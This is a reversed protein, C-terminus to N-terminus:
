NVTNKPDFPQVDAVLRHRSSREQTQDLQPLALRLNAYLLELSARLATRLEAAEERLRRMQKLQCRFESLPMAIDVPAQPLRFAEQIPSAVVWGDLEAKTAMVSGTSKGTSKGAPRRIPLGLEREYRQVTRVGKGLHSAIDKWGSLIELVARPQPM